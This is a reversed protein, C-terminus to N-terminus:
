PTIDDDSKANDGKTWKYITHAYPPFILNKPTDTSVIAMYGIYIMSFDHTKKRVFVSKGDRVVTFISVM